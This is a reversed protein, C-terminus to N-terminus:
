EANNVTVTQHVFSIEYITDGDDVGALLTDMYTFVCVFVELDFSAM